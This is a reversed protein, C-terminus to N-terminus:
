KSRKPLFIFNRTKQSMRNRKGVASRYSSIFIMERAGKAIPFRGKFSNHKMATGNFLQLSTRGNNIRYKFKLNINPTASTIDFCNYRRKNGNGRTRSQRRARTLFILVKELSQKMVIFCSRQGRFFLLTRIKRAIDTSIHRTFLALCPILKGIIVGHAKTSCYKAGKNTFTRQMLSM